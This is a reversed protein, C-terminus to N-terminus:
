SAIRDGCDGKHFLAVVLNVDTREIGQGVVYAAVQAAGNMIPLSRRIQKSGESNM